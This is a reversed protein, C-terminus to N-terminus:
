SKVTDGLNLSNVFEQFTPVEGPCYVKMVLLQAGVVRRDAIVPRMGPGAAGNMLQQTLVGRRLAGNPDDCVSGGDNGFLRVLTEQSPARAGAATLAASLQVAKQQAEQSTKGSHFTFLAIVALVLVVAGMVIYTTRTEKDSSTETVTM